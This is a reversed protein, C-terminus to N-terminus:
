EVLEPVRTYHESPHKSSDYREILGGEVFEDRLRAQQEYGNYSICSPDFPHFSFIGDSGRIRGYWDRGADAARWLSTPVLHAHIDITKM